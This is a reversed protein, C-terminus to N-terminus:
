HYRDEVAQLQAARDMQELPIAEAPQGRPTKPPAAGAKAAVAKRRESRADELESHVTDLVGSITLQLENVAGGLEALRQIEFKEVEAPDPLNERLRLERRRLDWWLAMCGLLVGYLPIVLLVTTM